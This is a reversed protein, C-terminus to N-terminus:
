QNKLLSIWHNLQFKLNEWALIYDEVTIKHKVQDLNEKDLCPCRQINVNVYEMYDDSKADIVLEGDGFYSLHKIKSNRDLENCSDILFMIDDEIFLQTSLLDFINLKFIKIEKSLFFDIAVESNMLEVIEVKRPVLNLVHM